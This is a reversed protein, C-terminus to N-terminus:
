EAPNYRRLRYKKLRDGKALAVDDDSPATFGPPLHRRHFEDLWGGERGDEFSVEPSSAIINRLLLEIISSLSRKRRTAIARAKRVVEEDLTLNIRQKM